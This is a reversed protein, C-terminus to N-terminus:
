MAVKPNKFPNEKSPRRVLRALLAAEAITLENLDKKGFYVHAAAGIGYALEGYYVQNLYLEVIQDKTLSREIMTALAMDDLKRDITQESSTYVNKAIQMTLTSGGRPPKGYRMTEALIGFMAKFDVGVHERFRKDEAAITADIVKQPIKEISVYLRYQQQVSYLVEGDASVVVSPPVNVEERVTPLNPVRLVAKDLRQKGIVVVSILGTCALIWTWILAIKVRRWLRARRGPHAKARIKREEAM